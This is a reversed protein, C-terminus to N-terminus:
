RPAGIREWAAPDWVPRQVADAVRLATLFVLQLTRAAQENNARDPNDAATHLDASATSNFFLAPVGREAFPYHDSQPYREERSAPVGLEPHSRAVSDVVAGLSSYDKGILGVTGTPDRAIMDLNIVAVTRELPVVPHEVYWRSGFLGREEATLAAFVLTRSPFVNPTAFAQALEIIGVTGSANDDAGNCVSDAPLEPVPQCRGGVVGVHDMHSTFVVAEGRLGPDSGELVGVVNAVTTAAVVTYHPALSMTVGDLVRVSSAAGPAPAAASEGFDALLAAVASPRVGFQPFPGGGRLGRPAVGPLMWGTPFSRSAYRTWLEPPFDVVVVHALAGLVRARASVPNLWRGGSQEVPVVHLLVAGRLPVDGFPRATDAPIGAMFVVPADRIEGPREGGAFLLDQGLTWTASTGRWVATMTTASDLKRLEIPFHQLYGGDDGAPRLGADRFRQAVWETARALEPSPTERGRTSDHALAALKLQFDGPTITALARAVGTSPPAQSQRIQPQMSSFPAFLSVAALAAFRRVTSM